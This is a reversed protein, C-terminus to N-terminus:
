GAPEAGQMVPSRPALRSSAVSRITMDLTGALLETPASAIGFERPDLTQNSSITPAESQPTDIGRTHTSSLSLTQGMSSHDPAAGTGSRDVQVRMPAMGRRISAPDSSRINTRNMALPSTAGRLGRRQLDQSPQTRQLSDGSRQLAAESPRLPGEVARCGNPTAVPTGAADGTVRQRAEGALQQVRSSTSEVPLRRAPLGRNSPAPSRSITGAPAALSGTPSSQQQPNRRREPLPEAPKPESPRNTNSVPSRARPNSSPTAPGPISIDAMGSPSQPRRGVPLNLSAAFGAGPLTRSLDTAVELGPSRPLKCSAGGLPAAPATMDLDMVSRAFAPMEYKAVLSGSGGSNSVPESKLLSQLVNSLDEDRKASCELHPCRLRLVFATADELAVRRDPLDAKNGVVAIRMQQKGQEELMGRWHALHDFSAHDTLDYVLLAADAGRLVPNRVAQTNQLDHGSVDWLQIKISSDNVTVVHTRFEPGGTPIYEDQFAEHDEKSLRLLLNTKGVGPDGLVVLKMIKPLPPAFDRPPPAERSTRREVPTSSGIAPSPSASARLPPALEQAQPGHRPIQMIRTGVPSPSPSARRATSPRQPAMRAQLAVALAEFPISCSAGDMMASTNIHEAGISECFRQVEPSPLSRPEVFDAKCAVLVIACDCQARQLQEYWYRASSIPSDDDPSLSYMLLVGAAGQVYKPFQALSSTEGFGMDWVQFRVKEGDVELGKTTLEVSVTPEYDEAFNDSTWRSLLCSKGVKANGVLVVKRATM